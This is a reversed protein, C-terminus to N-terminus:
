CLSVRILLINSFSQIFLACLRLQISCCYALEVIHVGCLFAALCVYCLLLGIVVCWSALVFDFCHSNERIIWLLICLNKVLFVLPGSTSCSDCCFIWWVYWFSCIKAVSICVFVMIFSDWCCCIVVDLDYVLPISSVSSCWTSCLISYSCLNDADILHQNFWISFRTATKSHIMVLLNSSFKWQNNFFITSTRRCIKPESRRCINFNFRRSHPISQKLQDSITSIHDAQNSCFQLQQVAWQLCSSARPFSSIKM